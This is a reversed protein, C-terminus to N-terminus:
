RGDTKGGVTDQLIELCRGDRLGAGSEVRSEPLRARGQHELSVKRIGGKVDERGSGPLMSVTQRNDEGRDEEWEVTKGKATM